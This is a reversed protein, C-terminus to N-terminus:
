SKQDLALSCDAALRLILTELLTLSSPLPIKKNNLFLFLSWM